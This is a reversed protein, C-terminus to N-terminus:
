SEIRAIIYYRRSKSVLRRHDLGVFDALSAAGAADVPM